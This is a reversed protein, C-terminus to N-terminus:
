SRLSAMFYVYKETQGMEQGAVDVQRKRLIKIIISDSNHSCHPTFHLPLNNSNWLITILMGLTAPATGCVGKYSM